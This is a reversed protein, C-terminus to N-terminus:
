SPQGDVGVREQMERVLDIFADFNGGEPANDARSFAEALSQAEADTLLVQALLFVIEEEKAIHRRLMQAFLFLARRIRPPASPEAAAMGALGKRLEEVFYRGSEHESILVKVPGNRIIEKKSALIPFLCREEKAHHRRDAFEVFFEIVLEIFRIDPQNGNDIRSTEKEMFDLVQSILSHEEELAIFPNTL